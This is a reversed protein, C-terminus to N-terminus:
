YTFLWRSRPFFINSNDVIRYTMFIFPSDCGGFWSLQMEVPRTHTVSGFPLTYHWVFEPSFFNYLRFINHEPLIWFTLRCSNKVLIIRSEGAGPRTEKWGEIYQNYWIERQRKECVNVWKPTSPFNKEFRCGSISSKESGCCIQTHVCVDIAQMCTHYHASVYAIQSRQRLFLRGCGWLITSRICFQAVFPIRDLWNIIWQLKNQHEPLLTPQNKRM